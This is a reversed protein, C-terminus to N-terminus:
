HRAATTGTQAMARTTLGHLVAKARAHDGVVALAALTDLAEDLEARSVHVPEIRVVPTGDAPERHEAPGVLAEVLNEGPRLGTVAIEIDAHPVRGCLRIMREALEFINIQEGMELAL